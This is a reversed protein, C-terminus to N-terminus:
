PNWFSREREASRELLLGASVEDYLYDEESAQTELTM